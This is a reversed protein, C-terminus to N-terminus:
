GVLGVVVGNLLNKDCCVNETFYYLQFPQAIIKTIGVVKTLQLQLETKGTNCDTKAAVKLFM